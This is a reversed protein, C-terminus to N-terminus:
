KSDPSPMKGAMAYKLFLHMEAITQWYVEGKGRDHSGEALVRLLIPNESRNAKQMRAAFKKGHYPPVNNDLEGTQIYVPPYAREQVHHYPSYSLLYEFMERSERPNGYETIYMPGRDDEVFHIMDTHPVSDLVCGWLEPRMTVLASMLLGGNSCGCIALKEPRTWGQRLIEQAVGIFDEYCHRKNMMMGDEHWRPGYESGGRLTCQIYIGGNEAWRAVQLGSIAETYQPTLGVNYGGYAHMFTPNTGDPQVDKRRVLYYPIPTRDEASPAFHQEVVLDPHTTDDSLLVPSLTDGTFLLIRPADVFSEFALLVGTDTRGTCSLAGHPSPLPIRSGDSVRILRSSVDEMAIVYLQGAVSFGECLVLASEPLITTRERGCVAIVAGREAESLTIFCHKGDVSDLYHWEVPQTNLLTCSGNNDIAVWRAHAYDLCVEALVFRGDWSAHVEGFICYSDDEYVTTSSDTAPDYKFFVSHSQQTVPDSQTSSYYVCGDGSCWCFSFLSPFVRLVERTSVRCVALCPRAAGPYQIMMALIDPDAPCAEARFLPLGNLEEARPLEETARFGADLRYLRYDGNERMTGIYGDKWPTIGTPLPKVARAKLEAIMVRLDEAPFFADTCANERAVFDLVRPDKGDRLWAYPDPLRTGFWDEVTDCEPCHPYTYKAM